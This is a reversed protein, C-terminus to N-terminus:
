GLLSGLESFLSAAALALEKGKCGVLEPSPHSLPPHHPAQCGVQLLWSLSNKSTGLVTRKGKKSCGRFVQEM